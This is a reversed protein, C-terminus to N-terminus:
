LPMFFLNWFKMVVVVVVFKEESLFKRIKARCTDARAKISDYHINSAFTVSDLRNMRSTEEGENITTKINSLM